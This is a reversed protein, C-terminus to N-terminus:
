CKDGPNRVERLKPFQHEIIGDQQGQEVDKKIWCNMQKLLLTTQTM